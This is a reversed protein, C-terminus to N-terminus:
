WKETTIQDVLLWDTVHQGKVSGDILSAGTYILPLFDHSRVLLLHANHFLIHRHRAATSDTPTLWHSCKASPQQRWNPLRWKLSNSDSLASDFCAQRHGMGSRRNLLGPRSASSTSLPDQLYCLASHDLSSTIPWYLLRDQTWRDWLGCFNWGRAFSYFSTYIGIFFHEEKKGWWPICYTKM